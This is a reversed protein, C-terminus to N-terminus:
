EKTYTLDFDPEWSLGDSSKEWRGTITKGDSSFAGMFRQSWGPADRWLKWADDQLSMQYIRSVGRSDYHLQCYAGTTDDGSIVTVSSPFDATEAGTHQVLFGDELWAFVTPGRGIITGDVSAEWQWRGVFAALRALVPNATPRDDTM